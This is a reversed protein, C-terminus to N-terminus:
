GKERSGTREGPEVSPNLQDKTSSGRLCLHAHEVGVASEYRDDSASTGVDEFRPRRTHGIGLIILILPVHYAGQTTDAGLLRSM